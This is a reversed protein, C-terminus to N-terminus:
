LAITMPHALRVDAGAPHPKTIGNIGRTVEVTQPLSSGDGIILSVRMVEGGVTIDFPFDDPYDASTIWTPGATTAVSLTTEADDIAFALESGATDAREPADPEGGTTGDAAEGVTWPSAPTCVLTIDWAHTNIREEYGQVIVDIEAAQVWSPPNLIRVRDGADLAVITPIHAAMRPNALNLRITPFRMEDVTGLHLRWAAQDPLQADDALNLTVSEDYRGVAAVGLPGTEDVVRYSAGRTRKVTVDNRTAQDDDTPEIPAFIEGSGYDLTLVPPQNYLTDRGRYSLGLRDRLEGAVGLDPAQADTVVDLFTGRPQPGLRTDAAGMIEMPVNQETSIRNLRTRATDNRSYGSFSDNYALPFVGGWVSLHGLSMGELESGFRTDIGTARGATGTYDASIASGDTTQDFWAIEWDVLFGNQVALFRFRRWDNFFPPTRGTLNGSHANIEVDDADYIRGVIYLDGSFELLSAQARGETTIINFLVQESTLTEPEPLKYFFDVEWGNVDDMPIARSTRLRANDTITPLRESSILSDDDAFVLGSAILPEVNDVGATPRTTDVGDELPWYAPPWYAPIASRLASQLPSQGQGLRRLIGAAQLPVWVDSDSLDWRPPWSAVQGVFRVSYDPPTPARVTLDDYAFTLPTATDDATVISRLGFLGDDLVNTYAQTHWVAPEEEGDAWVRMRLEPGDALCRVRLVTDPEYTLDPVNSLGSTFILANDQFEQIGTTIRLGEDSPLGTDTRFGVSFRVLTNGVIRAQVGAFAAATLSGAPVRDISVTFEADFDAPQDTTTTQNASSGLVSMAMLGRGGSVSYTSAPVNGFPDDWVQGTDATGWGDTVTRAFGDVLHVEGPPPPDEVSVRLPTNRGILGYYPSMPNRPSYKGHRNNLTLSLKAPDAQTAEDARGRRIQIDSSVRVDGTIDVWTGDSLQLEVGLDPPFTPPQYAETVATLEASASLTASTTVSKSVAAALDGSAALSASTTVAKSLDATLVASADLTASTVPAAAPGLAASDSIALHSLYTPPPTAASQDEAWALDIAALVEAGAGGGSGFTGVLHGLGHDAAFGDLQGAMEDGYFGDAGFLPAPYGLDILRNQYDQVDQSFTGNGYPLYFDRRYRYASVEATVGGALGTGTFTAVQEGSTAHGPYLRVETDTGDSTAEIRVWQGLAVGTGSLTPSLASDDLGDPQLTVGVDGGATEHLVLGYSGLRAIWRVEDEGYGAAQLDPLYAYVRLHWPASPLTATLHPTDGRHLGTSVELTTLSRVTQLDEYVARDLAGIDVTGVRATNALSSTTPLAGPPGSLSNDVTVAM